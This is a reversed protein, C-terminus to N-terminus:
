KYIRRMLTARDKVSHLTYRMHIFDFRNERFVWDDEFDDVNFFVNRPVYNPQIPSLDIGNVTSRHFKEAVSGPASTLTQDRGNSESEIGVPTLSDQEPIPAPLWHFCM